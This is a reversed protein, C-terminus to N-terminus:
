AILFMIVIQYKVAELPEVGSLLQGTMMGPLSVLGVVMMSNIMPTMGSRLARQIMPKAAEYSTAGLALQSEISEKQTAFSDTLTTLGVSIGNLVNGLVMGLLPIIFQGTLKESSGHQVIVLTFGTAIWSSLGISILSDLWIGPYRRENRSAATFGAISTMATALGIVWYWESQGFIWDLALGIIILQTVMRLSAILLSRELKLRLAISLILNLLILTSVWGVQGFSLELYQATGHATSTNM